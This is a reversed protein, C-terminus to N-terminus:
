VLHVSHPYMLVLVSGNILNKQCKTAMDGIKRFYLGPM